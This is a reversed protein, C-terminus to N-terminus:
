RSRGRKGSTITVGFRCQFDRLVRRDISAGCLERFCNPVLAGFNRVFSLFQNSVSSFVRQAISRAAEAIGWSQEILARRLARKYRFNFRRAIYLTGRANILSVFSVFVPYPCLLRIYCSSVRSSSHILYGRLSNAYLTARPLCILYM